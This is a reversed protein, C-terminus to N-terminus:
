TVVCVEEGTDREPVIKKKNKVKERHALIPHLLQFEESEADVEFDPNSFLASFRDDGIPNTVDLKTPTTKAKDADYIFKEALLKNVKPLKQLFHFILKFTLLLPFVLVLIVLCTM